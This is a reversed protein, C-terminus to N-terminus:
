DSPVANVMNDLFLAGDTVALEGRKLGELIEVQGDERMGTKVIRQTFHRRDSTVWATMTGDGERVLGNLPIGVSEVPESVQIAVEALMGPRLEDKADEVECRVPLHHLNPDITGYIRAVKGTFTRNPLAMVRVKVPQEERVLSSDSELVNAVLWKVPNHEQRPSHIAGDLIIRDIETDTKGLARLADRAAKFAAEATQNDSIAQELERQSVGNTESLSRARVLENSAVEVTGAAGLLTSEAQVIAPDEDFTIAGVAEKEVTFLYTAMLAVKISVLQNTTLEVTVDANTASRPPSPEDGAPPVAAALADSGAPKARCATLCAWIMVAAAAVIAWGPWGAPVRDRLWKM